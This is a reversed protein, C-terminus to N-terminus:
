MKVLRLNKIVSPIVVLVIKPEASDAKYPMINANLRASPDNLLPPDIHM